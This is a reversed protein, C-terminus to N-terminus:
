ISSSSATRERAKTEPLAIEGVINVIYDVTVDCYNRDQDFASHVDMYSHKGRHAMPGICLLSIKRQGLAKNWLSQSFWPWRGPFLIAGLAQASDHAGYLHYIHDVYEIGPDNSLVGGLSIVQLPAKITEKLYRASGLSIQGGGSYGLLTVPKGSGLQYGQRLLGQLVMEATGYNYIPGYRRDVSVGVQILNRINILLSLRAFRGKQMKLAHIGKWFRSLLRDSTLGLNEVSFAFVDRVIPTQPLHQTLRDLFQLEYPSLYEGSIDGIGSLYVIYHEAMESSIAPKAPSLPDVIVQTASRRRGWWRLAGIPALVASILLAAIGILSLNIVNEFLFVGVSSLLDVVTTM